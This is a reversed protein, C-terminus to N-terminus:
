NFKAFIKSKKFFCHELIGEKESLNFIKKDSGDICNMGSKETTFVRYKLGHRIRNLSFLIETITLKQRTTGTPESSRNPISGNPFRPHINAPLRLRGKAIWRALHESYYISVSESPSSIIWAKQRHM